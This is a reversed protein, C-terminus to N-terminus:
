SFARHFIIRNIQIFIPNWTNEILLETRNQFESAISSPDEDACIANWVDDLFKRYQDLVKKITERMNEMLVTALFLLERYTEEQEAYIPDDISSGSPKASLVLARFDDLYKFLMDRLQNTNQQFLQESANNEPLIDQDSDHIHRLKFILAPLRRQIQDVLIM